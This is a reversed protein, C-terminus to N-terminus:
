EEPEIREVQWRVPRRALKDGMYSQWSTCIRYTSLFRGWAPLGPLLGAAKWLFLSYLWVRVVSQAFAVGRCFLGNGYIGTGYRTLLFRKEADIKVKQTTRLTGAHNTEVALIEHIKSMRFGREALRLWYECDGLLRVDLALDGARDFCKRRMFVTPQPILIGTRLQNLSLPMYVNITANSAAFDLVLTDGFVVDVEAHERFYRDVVELTWPFYYDDTNIYGLIEGSTARFGKNIADYMGEDSEVITRFRLDGAHQELIDRTGDSSGGDVVVYELDSMGQGLVSRITTGILQARNFSPTIISFRVAM